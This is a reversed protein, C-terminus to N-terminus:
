ERRESVKAGNSDSMICYSEFLPLLAITDMEQDKLFVDCPRSSLFPNASPLREEVGSC